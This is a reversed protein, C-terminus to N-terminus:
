LADAIKRFCIKGVYQYKAVRALAMKAFIGEVIIIAMLTDTFIRVFISLAMYAFIDSSLKKINAFIKVAIALAMNAFWHM